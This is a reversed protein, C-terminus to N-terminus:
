PNVAKWKGDPQQCFRYRSEGTRGRATNVLKVRRCRAGQVESTDLLTIRGSSGTQPNEWSTTTGDAATELADRVAARFQKLDDESFQAIPAEHLFRWNYASAMRPGIGMGLGVVLGLALLSQRRRSHSM